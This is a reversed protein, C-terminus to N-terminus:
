TLRKKRKKEVVIQMPITDLSLGAGLCKHTLMAKVSKTLFIISFYFRAAHVLSSGGRAKLGSEGLVVKGVMICMQEERGM